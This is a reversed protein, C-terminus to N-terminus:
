RISVTCLIQANQLQSQTKVKIEHSITPGGYASQYCERRDNPNQNLSVLELVVATRFARLLKIQQLSQRSM